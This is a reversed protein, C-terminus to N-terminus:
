WTGPIGAWPYDEVRPALGKRVPNNVIYEATRRIDEGTRMVHEYFGRQWLQRRLSKTCFSKMARVLGRLDTSGASSKVLMHLHDPMLCYALLEYEHIACANNMIEIVQKNVRASVFLADKGRSGVIVHYVVHAAAYDFNLLRVSRSKGWTKYFGSGRM